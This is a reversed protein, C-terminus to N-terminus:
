HHSDHMTKRATTGIQVVIHHSLVNDALKDTKLHM